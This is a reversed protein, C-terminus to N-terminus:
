ISFIFASLRSVISCKMLRVEGYAWVTVWTMKESISVFVDEILSLTLFDTIIVPHNHFFSNFLM